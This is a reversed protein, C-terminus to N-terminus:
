RFYMYYDCRMNGNYLKRKKDARKGFWREFEPFASIAYAQWGPLNRHLDGLGRCAKHVEKLDGMREGYPPNCVITGGAGTPKACSVPSVGFQISDAMGAQKANTKAISIAEPDNDSAYIFLNEHSVASKAEGRLAAWYSLDARAFGEMAFSRLLGPATNSGILAAEIAITGSGCFPDLFPRDAKWRTLLILGAALNERLPAEVGQTRYGRRNLGQGSTDISVTVVDKLLAIDITYAAGTEPLWELHYAKKLREVVAKKCISQVDSVSFLKSHVAKGRVPFAADKTLLAEWPLARVGEFLEDFTEAQFEGLVLYVRDATRLHMNAKAAEHLGGSFTVRADSPSVDEMGLNRLEEALVGELGFSCTALVHKFSFDIM